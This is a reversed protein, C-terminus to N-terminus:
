PVPRWRTISTRDRPDGDLEIAVRQEAAAAFVAHWDAIVGARSGSMRGRPHALIRVAPNAVAALM